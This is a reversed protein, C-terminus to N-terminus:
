QDNTSHRIQEFTNKKWILFSFYFQKTNTREFWINYEKQGKKTVRWFPRGKELITHQGLPTQM